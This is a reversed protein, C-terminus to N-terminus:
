LHRTLQDIATWNADAKSQPPEFKRLRACPVLDNVEALCQAIVANPDKSRTIASSLAIAFIQNQEVYPKLDKVNSPKFGGIAIVQTASNKLQQCVKGILATSTKGTAPESWGTHCSILSAGLDALEQARQVKWDDDHCPMLDFAVRKQDTNASNIAEQIVEDPVTAMVTVLDTGTYYSRWYSRGEAGYPIDYEIFDAVLTQDNDLRQRFESIIPVEELTAQLLTLRGIEHIIDHNPHQKLITDLMLLCESTSTHDYTIWLYPKM